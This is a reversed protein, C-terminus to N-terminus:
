QKTKNQKKQQQQLKTKNIDKIDKEKSRLDLTQGTWGQAKSQCNGPMQGEWLMVPDQSPM